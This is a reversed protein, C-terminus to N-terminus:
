DVLIASCNVGREYMCTNSNYAFFVKFAVSFLSNKKKYVQIVAQRYSHAVEALVGDMDFLLSTLPASSSARVLSASVFLPSPPPSLRLLLGHM